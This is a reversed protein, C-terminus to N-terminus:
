IERKNGHIYKVTPFRLSNKGNKATTEEFYKVTIVKGLIEEPHEYYYRREEHSFGSGVSVINGKHEILVNALMKELRELGTKKDIIRNFDFKVDKVVYEDDFFKKVKLLDNSRKGKYITDKRIMAGEWGKKVAYTLFSKLEEHSNVLTQELLEIKDSKNNKFAKCLRLYYRDSFNVKSHKSEFEELTLCDYIIYKPKKITHNKNRIQKMISQFNENGNEDMICAEGDFVMDRNDLELCSLDLLPQKLNDLTHFQKGNRSYFLVSNGKKIAVCRVGDLKRSKFWTDNIFDVKSEYDEYKNALAVNFTKILGPYISNITKISIRTELNKDIIKYILDKYLKNFEVFMMSLMIAANGTVKRNYLNELFEYINMTAINNWKVNGTEVTMEKGENKKIVDSTINFQIFPSYTLRLLEKCNPYKALVEKKYNTSNNRNLEEVMEKLLQLDPVQSM